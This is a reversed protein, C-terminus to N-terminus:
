IPCCQRHTLTRQKPQTPLVGTQRSPSPQKPVPMHKPFDQPSMSQGHYWAIGDRLSRAFAKKFSRKQISTMGHMSTPYRVPGFGVTPPPGHIKAELLHQLHTAAFNAEMSDWPQIGYGEGGHLHNSTWSTPAHIQMVCLFLVGLLTKNVARGSKPGPNHRRLSITIDRKTGDLGCCFFATQRSFLTSRTNQFTQAITTFWPQHWHLFNQIQIPHRLFHELALALLLLNVLIWTLLRGQLLSFYFLQFPIQYQRALALTWLSGVGSADVSTTHYAIIWDGSLKWILDISTDFLSHSWPVAFAAPDFITVVRGLGTCLISLNFSRQQWFQQQTTNVQLSCDAPSDVGPSNYRHRLSRAAVDSYRQRPIVQGTLQQSGVGCFPTGTWNQRQLKQSLTTHCTWFHASHRHESSCHSDVGSFQVIDLGSFPLVTNFRDSSFFTPYVATTLSTLFCLVRGTFIRSGVGCNQAQQAPRQLTCSQCRQRAPLFFDPHLDVPVCLKNTSLSGTIDFLAPYQILSVQGSNNRSGVGCNPSEGTADLLSVQNTRQQRDM